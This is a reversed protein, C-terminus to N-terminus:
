GAAPQVTLALGFSLLHGIPNLKVKLELSLPPLRRSSTPPVVSLLQTDSRARQPHNRQSVHHQPHIPRLSDYFYAVRKKDNNVIDHLPRTREVRGTAMDITKPM